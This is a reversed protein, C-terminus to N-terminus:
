IKQQASESFCYATSCRLSEVICFSNLLSAILWYILCKDQLHVVQKHTQLDGSVVTEFLYFTFTFKERHNKKLEAGRWPPTNPSHLYLEV